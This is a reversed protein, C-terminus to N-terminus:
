GIRPELVYDPLFNYLDNPKIPEINQSKVYDILDIASLENANQITSNNEAKFPQHNLINSNVKNDIIIKENDLIFVRNNGAELYAKKHFKWEAIELLNLGILKIHKNFQVLSKAFAVGVRLGTFSGPTKTVIVFDLDRVQLKNQSLVQKTVKALNEAPKELNSFKHSFNVENIQIVLEEPQFSTQIALYNSM